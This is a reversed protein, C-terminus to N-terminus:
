GAGGSAHPLSDVSVQPIDCSVAPKDYRHRGKGSRFVILDGSIYNLISCLAIASANAYLLNLGLEEIFLTMLLLNGILSVAGNALHFSLLRRFVSGQATETRDAWTWREHWFFNHIVAAEVALGTAALYNIGLASTLLLLVSMQVVIGIAGVTNFILWRKMGSTGATLSKM